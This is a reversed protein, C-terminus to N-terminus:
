RSSRSTPRCAHMRCVKDHLKTRPLEDESHKRRPRRTTRAVDDFHHGVDMLATPMTINHVNSHEMEIYGDDENLMHEQDIDLLPDAAMPAEGPRRRREDLCFNHLRALAFVLGITKTVTYKSHMATRLIGWRAALMDFVCEVRIRLQSHYFNYNDESKKNSNGSVNSYPTAMFASNLYANDGFLVLGDKLLGKELRAYLDSAEFAVCDAASAGYAISLDLIRGNVDGVAQCNLGFKGKRGCFFKMQDVGVRKAERLTPKQMWILVGDIAGACNDFGVGSVREFDAAIRRQEDVSSPYEIRFEPLNNVAHVVHWVSDMVDTHSIGYNSMLDYVSGGAFVRLACALRVSTSIRGNRIPPSRYRGGKRRGKPVYRRATLRAANIRTALKSHLQWFSEYSMRYARRFYDAGLVSYIERVSRRVRRIAVRGAHSEKQPKGSQQLLYSAACAAAQVVFSCGDDLM